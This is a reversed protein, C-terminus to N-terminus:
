LRVNESMLAKATTNQTMNLELGLERFSIAYTYIVGAVGDLSLEGVAKTLTTGSYGLIEVVRVPPLNEVDGKVLQRIVLAQAAYSVVKSNM